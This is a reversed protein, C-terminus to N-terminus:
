AKPSTEVYRRFERKHMYRASIPRILRSGDIERIMFTLFIMRGLYGQGVAHFRIEATLHGVDPSVM